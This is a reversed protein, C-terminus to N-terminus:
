GLRGERDQENEMVEDEDCEPEAAEDTLRLKLDDGHEAYLANLAEKKGVFATLEEVSMLDLKEQAEDYLVAAANDEGIAEVFEAVKMDDVQDSARQWRVDYADVQHRAM